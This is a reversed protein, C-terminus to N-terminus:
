EFNQIKPILPVHKVGIKGVYLKKIDGGSRVYDEILYKGKLYLHDKTFAGPKSTDSLGRKARLTLTWAENKDFYELLSNYAYSFSNKMALDVAIVRGAYNKIIKNSLLGARNENYIALGEETVLYDPFGICFLMYHNKRGNEARAVHTGIEHVILRKIDNNSFKRNKNVYITKNTNDIRAGVIMDREKVKWHFGHFLLSEVMKRMTTFTAHKEEEEGIELDMLRYAKSVLDKSPAGHIEKSLGTIKSTGISLLFNTMNFFERRKEDLLKGIVSHDTKIKELNRKVVLLNNNIGIYRLRPNYTKEHFVKNKEIETNVPQFSTAYILKKFFFALESDARTNLM